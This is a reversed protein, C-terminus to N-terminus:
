NCRRKGWGTRTRVGCQAVAVHGPHGPPMDRGAAIACFGCAVNLTTLTGTKKIGELSKSDHHV